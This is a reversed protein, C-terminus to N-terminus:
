KKHKLPGSEDEKDKDEPEKRKNRQSAAAPTPTMLQKQSFNFKLQTPTGETKVLKQAPTDLSGKVAGLFYVTHMEVIFHVVSGPKNDNDLLCEVDTIRGIILARSNANPINKSKAFRPIDPVFVKFPVPGCGKLASIYQEARIEFTNDDVNPNSVTGCAHVIARHCVDVEDAPGLYVLEIIDGAFHYEKWGLATSHHAVADSMRAVQICLNYASIAEPFKFDNENYWTLCGILAPTSGNLYIQADLMYSRPKEPNPTRPNELVAICSFTTMVM